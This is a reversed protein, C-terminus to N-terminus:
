THFVGCAPSQRSEQPPATALDWPNARAGDGALNGQPSVHWEAAGLEGAALFCCCLLVASAVGPRRPM